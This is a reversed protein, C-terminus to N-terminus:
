PTAQYPVGALWCAISQASADFHPQPLDRPDARLLKTYCVNYSTIRVAISRPGHEALIQALRDGIEDLAQQTDLEDFEGASGRKLGRLVRHEAGNIFEIAAIGKPCM